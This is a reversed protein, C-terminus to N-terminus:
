RNLWRIGYTSWFLQQNFQKAGIWYAGVLGGKLIDRARENHRPDATRDSLWAYLPFILLNLDPAARRHLASKDLSEGSIVERDAYRFAKEKSLWLSDWLLDALASLEEIVLGLESTPIKNAEVAEIIARATLAAMFPVIYRTKSEIGRWSAKGRWQAIHGRALAVLSNRWLEESPRGLKEANLHALLGYAVERSREASEANSHAKEDSSAYRGREALLFLAEKSKLDKSREYHRKLGETFIWYGPVLGKQSEPLKEHLLYKDRYFLAAEDGLKLWEKDGLLEGVNYFASARDYYTIALAQNYPGVGGPEALDNYDKVAHHIQKLANLSNLFEQKHHSAHHKVASIFEAQVEDRGAAYVYHEEPSPACGSVLSISIVPPLTTCLLWTFFSM